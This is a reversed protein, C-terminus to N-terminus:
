GARSADAPESASQESAGAPGAPGSSRAPPKHGPPMARRPKASKPVLVRFLWLFLALTTLGVTTWQVAAIAGDTGATLTHATAFVFLAFSLRHVRRWTKNSIRKMMLSTIEVALLLYLAVIGYAVAVPRWSSTFPILIDAPGFRVYSDAVLAGIHVGVFVLSLAGLFRHFALMWPPKPSPGTIRTSLALGWLVSGALLGWSVLGGARALYWSLKVV